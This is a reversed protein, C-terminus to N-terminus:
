NKAERPEPKRSWKGAKTPWCFIKLGL